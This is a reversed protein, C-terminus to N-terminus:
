TAVAIGFETMEEGVNQFAAPVNIVSLFSRSGALRHRDGARRHAQRTGFVDEIIAIDSANQAAFLEDLRDRGVQTAVHEVFADRAQDLALASLGPEVGNLIDSIDDLQCAATACEIQLLFESDGGLAQRCEILDSAQRDGHANVCHAIGSNGQDHAVLGGAFARLQGVTPSKGSARRSSVPTIM